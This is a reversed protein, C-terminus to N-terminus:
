KKRYVSQYEDQEKKNKGSKKTPADKKDTKSRYLSSYQKNDCKVREIRARFALYIGIVIFYIVSLALVLIFGQAATADKAKNPLYLFVFISCLTLFYHILVRWVTKLESYKYNLNAFAFVASFPLICLLAVPSFGSSLDRSLILYLFLLLFTTATFYICTHACVKKLNM